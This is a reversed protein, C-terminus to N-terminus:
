FNYDPTAIRDDYYKRAKERIIHVVTVYLEPIADKYIKIIEDSRLTSNTYEKWLHYAYFVPNKYTKQEHVVKYKITSAFCIFSENNTLGILSKANPIKIRQLEITEQILKLGQQKYEKTELISKCSICMSILFSTNNHCHPCNMRFDFGCKNCSLASVNNKHNCSICELYKITFDKCERCLLPPKHDYEAQCNECKQVVFNRNIMAIGGNNDHISIRSIFKNVNGVYDYIRANTKNQYARAVRGHAQKLGDFGHKFSRPRCDMLFSAIPADYGKAIAEVSIIIKVIGSTFLKLNNAREQKTFKDDSIYTVAKIGAEIFEANIINATKINHVLIIGSNGQEKELYDKVLNAKINEVRKDLKDNSNNTLGGTATYEIDKTNIMKISYYEMPVLYGHDVMKNYTAINYIKEYYLYLSRKTATATFGILKIDLEKIKRLLKTFLIHCEDYLIVDYDSITDLKRIVSQVTKIEYCLNFRIREQDLQDIVSIRDTVLLIRINPNTAQYEKIILQILINKGSGTAAEIIFRKEPVTFALKLGDLQHQRALLNYMSIDRM